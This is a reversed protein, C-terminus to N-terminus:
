CLAENVLEALDGGLQWFETIDKGMPVATKRAHELHQRWTAVAKAGAQDNDFCLYVERDQFITWDAPLCENGGYTLAVHGAPLFRSLLVADLEGETVWIAGTANNVLHGGFPVDVRSGRVFRREGYKERHEKSVYVNVAALPWGGRGWRPLLLGPALRYRGYINKWEPNFGLGYVAIQQEFIGRKALWRVAAAAGADKEQVLYDVAHYLMPELREQWLERDFPRKEATQKLPVATAAPPQWGDGLVQHVVDPFSQGTKYALYQLGDGHRGCQRCNFRGNHSRGNKAEAFIAFRDEGEGCFPCPGRLEGPSIERLEVDIAALVPLNVRRRAESLTEPSFTLTNM